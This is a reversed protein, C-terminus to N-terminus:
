TVPGFAGIHRSRAVKGRHVAVKLARSLVRHARLVTAPSLGGDLMARYAAELHEPQVRDLRHKGLRPGLHLRVLSRYGELTLPRVRNVAINDLWHDLWAQM